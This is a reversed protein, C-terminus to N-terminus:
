DTTEGKRRIRRGAARDFADPNESVSVYAKASTTKYCNDPISTDPKQGSRKKRPIVM